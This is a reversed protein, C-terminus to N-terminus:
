GVAKRQPQWERLEAVLTCRGRDSTVGSRLRHAVRVLLVSCIACMRRALLAHPTQGDVAAHPLGRARIRPTMRDPTWGPPLINGLARHQVRGPSERQFRAHPRRRRSDSKALRVWEVPQKRGDQLRVRATWLARNAVAQFPGALDIAISAAIQARAWRDIEPHWRAYRDM